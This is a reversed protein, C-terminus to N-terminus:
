VFTWTEFDWLDFTFAKIRWRKVPLCITIVHFLTVCFKVFFCTVKNSTLTVVTLYDIEKGTFICMITIVSSVFNTVILSVRTWIELDFTLTVFTLNHGLVIELKNTTKM